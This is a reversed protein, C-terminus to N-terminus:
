FSHSSRFTLVACRQQTDSTGPFLGEDEKDLLLTDSSEEASMGQMCGLAGKEQTPWVAVRSVRFAPQELLSGRAAQKEWGPM